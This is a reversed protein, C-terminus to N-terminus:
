PLTSLNTLHGTATEMLNMVVLPQACEVTLQWKGVGTGLAGELGGTGAELDAATYSVVAGPPVTTRVTASPGGADDTGTISVDATQEGSNVIRLRSVQNVNRGPNFTTVRHRNGVRTVVDHMSTLFGDTTRIYSLVEIDAESSLRLRWDGEGSGTSGTLWKGANGFELDNSNFHVTELPGVTLGVPAYEGGAEDVAVITVEAATDSHNVVRVFGSRDSPESAAPFLPVFRANSPVSSLNTLHGTPSSLLSMAHIRSASEIELRWKGMGEGLAGALAPAAGSELEHANITVSGNAPISASVEGGPAGRDDIGRITAVAVAPSRNALRLLSKQATNSSPNFIAVSHVNDTSPAVDHMSALLGDSTRLYSLIEVGPVSSLDLRWTGQAPGAGGWLGKDANGDAVDGSNVHVAEGEGISLTLSGALVGDDDVVDIGLASARGSGDVVRLFGQRGLADSASPFYPISLRIPEVIAASLDLVTSVGTEAATVTVVAGGAATPSLQLVGHDIRAELVSPDSTTVTFTVGVSGVDPFLDALAIRKAVGVPLAYSTPVNAFGGGEGVIVLAAGVATAVGDFCPSTGCDDPVAPTSDFEVRVPAAGAPTITVPESVNAGVPVTVSDASLTGGVVSVDATMDFPVGERVTAVLSSASARSWDLTLTFPAGPNRRLKLNTLATHGRFLDVPLESLENNNLWLRELRGAGDFAGAPLEALKNSDLFLWKLSRMDAFLEAPLSVLGNGYLRLDVVGTLGQFDGALLTGELREALNLFYADALDAETVAECPRDGRLADRVGPTRDCVGEEIVVTARITGRIFGSITLPDLVVAVIERAPEIEADERVPIEIRAKTGGAPITAEGDGAGFDDADADHTAPDGDRELRYGVTTASELARAIAVELVATEGERATARADVFSITRANDAVAVVVLARVTDYGGGMATHLLTAEDPVMNDDESATVRVTKAVGWDQPSFKLSVPEVVLGAGNAAIDIDVDATPEAALAIRYTSTSGEDIALRRPLEVLDPADDDAVSVDLLWTHWEDDYATGVVETMHSLYADYDGARFYALLTDVVDRHREFMFRVALYSWRYVMTTDDRYVVPFVESLDVELSRGVDVANRNDNRQSIYEALGELWWVTHHTDVRYDGFGGHMNYRGDLYHVYEHALNWVPRDELWSAVYAIFRATNEPDSPDGELYIGGNDTDNGFFLYSYTVYEESDAFVVIELSSNLDEPVPVGGTRLRRHFYGEQADLLACAADLDGPELDQARITVGDSCAHRVALVHAEVEEEFGCIGYVECGEYYVAATATAVWIRKGEGFMDYRELVAKVGSRVAPHIAAYPYGTFRALERGANVALYEADTDLMWDDLAFDRLIEVLEDDDATVDVFTQQEHGRWLLVFFRSLGRRLGRLDGLAPRWLRLWAKTEELYRAQLGAADMFLVGEFLAHKGHAETEDYFHANAAFADLVDAVAADIEDDPLTWDLEEGEYFEVYLGVRLFLFLERINSSNTGDYAVTIPRTAEAVDIMNRKRFAAFRTSASSFLRNLCRYPTTRIHEVLADGTNAAFAGDDCEDEDDGAPRQSHARKLVIDFVRREATSLLRTSPERGARSDHTAKPTRLANEVAM